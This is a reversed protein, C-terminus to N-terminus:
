SRAWDACTLSKVRSLESINATVLTLSKQIAQGAMLVDYSGIRKGAAKLEANILGAARADDDDFLLIGVPGDLFAELRDSNLRVRSSKFAGYWLEFVAISSVFIQHKAAIAREFRRRVAESSDNM